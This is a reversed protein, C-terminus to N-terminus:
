TATSFQISYFYGSKPIFIIAITSIFGHQDMRILEPLPLNYQRFNEWVDRKTTDNVGDRSQGAYM